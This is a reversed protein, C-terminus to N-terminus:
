VNWDFNQDIIRFFQENHLRFHESLKRRLKSDIQCHYNGQNSKPFESIEFNPLELFQFIKLATEQQNNIFNEFSVVCIQEIPFFGLWNKIQDDYYGRTLYSFKFFDGVPYDPDALLHDFNSSIRASESELAEEFSLTERGRRKNHQYHSLARDIPNRVILILKSNPVADYLWKPVWPHIIFPTAEGELPFYGIKKSINRRQALTSFHAKYFALGRHRNSFNNFFHIEKNIRHIIGPHQCLCDYLSSTGSKQAGIIHFDPLSGIGLTQKTLIKSHEFVKRLNKKTIKLPM